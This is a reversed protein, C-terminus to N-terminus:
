LKGLVFTVIAEASAIIILGIISYLITSRAKSVAQPNGQSSVFKLGAIVIMLVAVAGFVALIIQLVQQLQISSAGVLPLGTDCTTTNNGCNALATGAAVYHILTPMIIM